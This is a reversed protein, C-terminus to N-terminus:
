GWAGLTQVKVEPKDETKMVNFDLAYHKWHIKEVGYYKFWDPM